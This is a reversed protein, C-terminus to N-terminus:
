RGAAAPRVYVVASALDPRGAPETVDIWAKGQDVLTMRGDAEVRGGRRLVYRLAYSGEATIALTLGTPQPRRIVIPTGDTHGEVIEHLTPIEWRIFGDPALHFRYGPAAADKIDATNRTQSLVWDGNWPSQGLHPPPPLSRAVAGGTWLATAAAVIRLFRAVGGTMRHLGSMRRPRHLIRERDEMPGAVKLLQLTKWGWSSGGAATNVFVLSVAALPGDQEIHIQEFRQTFPAGEFVGKRFAEYNATGGPAGNSRTATGTDSFPIDKDLLLTEFLARDKISVARTYTDLLTAIARADEGNSAFSAPIPAARAAGMPRLAATLLLVPSVRQPM